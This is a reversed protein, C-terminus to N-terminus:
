AFQERWGAQGAQGAQRWLIQCSLRLDYIDALSGSPKDSIQPEAYRSRYETCGRIYSIHRWQEGSPHELRDQKACVLLM